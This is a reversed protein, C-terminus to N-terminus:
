LMGKRRRWANTSGRSRILAIAPIMWRKGVLQRSLSGIGIRRDVERLTIGLFVAAEKRTYFWKEM